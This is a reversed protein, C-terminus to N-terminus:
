RPMVGVDERMGGEHEQLAWRPLPYNQWEIPLRPTIAYVPSVAPRLTATGSFAGGSPTRLVGPRDAAGDHEPEEIADLGALRCPAHRLVVLPEAHVDVLDQAPALPCLLARARVWDPLDLRAGREGPKGLVTREALSLVNAVAFGRRAGDGPSGSRGARTM